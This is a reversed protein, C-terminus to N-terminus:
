LSFDLPVELGLASSSTNFEKARTPIVEDLPLLADISRDYASREMLGVVVFAFLVDFSTLVCRRTNSTSEVSTLKITTTM